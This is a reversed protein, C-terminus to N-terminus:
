EKFVARLEEEPVEFAGEKGREPSGNEKPVPLPAQSPPGPKRTSALPPAAAAVAEKLSTKQEGNKKENAKAIKETMLALAAKLSERDVPAPPKAEKQFPMPPKKPGNRMGGVAGQGNGNNGGGNGGGNGGNGRPGRKWDIRPPLPEPAPISALDDYIATEVPARPVAFTKRSAEIVEQKFSRPPAEIPPITVASFPRSGVGDIMLTLYIQVFGLNVLDEKTFEPSFVTELIEADFPGVRFAVTTGVNGFVAARV